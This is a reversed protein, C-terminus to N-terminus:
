HFKNYIYLNIQTYLIIYCQTNFKTQLYHPALRFLFFVKIGQPKDNIKFQM